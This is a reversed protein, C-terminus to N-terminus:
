VSKHLESFGYKASTNNKLQYNELIIITSVSFIKKKQLITNGAISINTNFCVYTLIYM